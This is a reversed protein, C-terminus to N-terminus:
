RALHRFLAGAGATAFYLIAATGGIAFVMDINKRHDPRMGLLEAPASIPFTVIFTAMGNLSIWGGGHGRREDSVVYVACAIYVAALVAGVYSTPISM